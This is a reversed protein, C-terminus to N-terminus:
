RKIVFDFKGAYRNSTLPGLAILTDTIYYADRANLQAVNMGYAKTDGPFYLQTTLIPGNPAQVKVHIHPTRGPYDKPVITELTYSGDANTFQHGRGRYQATSNDYQGRQDAQWFDLLVNGLPQCRINYVFGTLSLLVGSVGTTRLNTRKPSNRRFYPGEIVPPTDDGDTCQPTLPLTAGQARQGSGAVGAIGVGAATVAVATAGTAMFSRRTTGDEHKETM